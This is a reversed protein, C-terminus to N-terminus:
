GIRALAKEFGEKFLLFYTLIEDSSQQHKMTEYTQNGLPSQFVATFTGCSQDGCFKSEFVITFIENLRDDDVAGVNLASIYGSQFAIQALASEILQQNVDIDEFISRDLSKFLNDM